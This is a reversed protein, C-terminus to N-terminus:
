LLYYAQAQAQSQQQIIRELQGDAEKVAAYAQQYQDLESGDRACRDLFERQRSASALKLQEAQGHVTVTYTGLGQLVSRPVSKGNVVSRSHGASPVSRSIFLEGDECGAGAQRAFDQVPGNESVDFIGQVWAQEAGPSVRESQTGAGSLLQVASLLMSKGAGTEGTIATMGAHPHLVAHDIPGLSRIELEELM